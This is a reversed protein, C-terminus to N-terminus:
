AAMPKADVAGQAFLHEHDPMVLYDGVFWGDIEGSRRWIETLTDFVAQGALLPRRKETVATLFVLPRRAFPLV